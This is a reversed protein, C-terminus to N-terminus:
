MSSMTPLLTGPPLLGHSMRSRSETALASTQSTACGCSYRYTHGRTQTPHFPIYSCSGELSFCDNGARVEVGWTYCTRWTVQAAALGTGKSRPRQCWTRLIGRGTASPDSVLRCVDWPTVRDRLDQVTVAPKLLRGAQWSALTRKTIRCVAKLSCRSHVQICLVALSGVDFLM